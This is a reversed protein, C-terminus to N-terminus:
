LAGSRQSHCGGFMEGHWSKVEQEDQFDTYSKAVVKGGTGLRVGETLLREKNKAHQGQDGREGGYM